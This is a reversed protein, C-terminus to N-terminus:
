ENQTQSTQFMRFSLKVNWLIKNSQRAWRRDEFVAELEGLLTMMGLWQMKLWKFIDVELMQMIICVYIM